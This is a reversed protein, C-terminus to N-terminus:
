LMTNENINIYSTEDCTIDDDDGKLKVMMSLRHPCISEMRNHILPLPQITLCKNM